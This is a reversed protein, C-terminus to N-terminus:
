QSNASGASTNTTLDAPITSVVRSLSLFITRLFSRHDPALRYGGTGAMRRIAAGRESIFLSRCSPSGTTQSFSSINQSGSDNRVRSFRLLTTSRRVLTVPQERETNFPFGTTVVTGNWVNNVSVSRTDTQPRFSPAPKHQAAR